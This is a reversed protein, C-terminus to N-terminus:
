ARLREWVLSSITERGGLIIPPTKLTLRDGTLTFYRVQDGGVWNPLSASEVQHVVHGEAAHVTYTGFYVIAGLTVARAEVDTFIRPDGSAFSPVRPDYVQVAMRGSPEYILRGSPAPGYPEVVEQGAAVEYSVLRWAGILSNATTPTM